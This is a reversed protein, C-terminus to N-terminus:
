LELADAKEPLTNWIIAFVCLALVIGILPLEKKLKIENIKNKKFNIDMAIRRGDRYNNLIFSLSDKKEFTIIL